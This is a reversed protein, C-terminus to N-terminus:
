NLTQTVLPEYSGLALARVTFSPRSDDHFLTLDGIQLPSHTRPAFLRHRGLWRLTRLASTKVPGSSTLIPIIVWYLLSRAFRYTMRPSKASSGLFHLTLS